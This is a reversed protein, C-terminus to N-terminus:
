VAFAKLAVHSMRETTGGNRSSQGEGGHPSVHKQPGTDLQDTTQPGSPFSDSVINTINDIRDPVISNRNFDRLAFAFGNLKAVRLDCVPQPECKALCIGRALSRFKRSRKTTMVRFAIKESRFM